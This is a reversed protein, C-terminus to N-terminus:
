LAALCTDAYASGQRDITRGAPIRADQVRVAGQEGGEQRMTRDLVDCGVMEFSVAILQCVGTEDQGAGIHKRCGEGPQQSKRLVMPDREDNFRHRNWGGAPDSVHVEIPQPHDCGVFIFQGDEPDFLSCGCFFLDLGQEVSSHLMDPQMLACFSGGDITATCLDSQVGAGDIHHITGPCSIGGNGSEQQTFLEIFLIIFAQPDCMGKGGLDQLHISGVDGSKASFFQQIPDGM